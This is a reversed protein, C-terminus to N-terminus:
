KTKDASRVRVEFRGHNEEQLREISHSLRPGIVWTPFNRAFAREAADVVVPIQQGHSDLTMTSKVVVAPVDIGLYVRASAARQDHLMNEGGLGLLEALTLKPDWPQIGKNGRAQPALDVCRMHGFPKKPHVFYIHVVDFDRLLEFALVLFIRAAAAFLVTFVLM